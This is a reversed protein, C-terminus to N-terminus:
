KLLSTTLDTTAMRLTKTDPPIHSQVQASGRPVKIIIGIVWAIKMIPTQIMIM